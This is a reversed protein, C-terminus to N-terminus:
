RHNVDSNESCGTSYSLAEDLEQRSAPMEDWWELAIIRVDAVGLRLATRAVDLATHVAESQEDTVAEALGTGNAAKTAAEVAAIGLRLATRAAEMAVDGGGVVIVRKGLEVRYGLNYNLLLDVAPVVGDLTVGEINLRRGQMLGVGLYIADFVQRLQSLPIDTGIRTEYCFKVGLARISEVDQDMAEWDVRYIPVGLRMMGGSKSAADFVTVDHGLLALDHAATLGSPGAGIVAVRGIRRGPQAALTTLMERSWRATSFDVGAAGPGRGLQSGAMLFQASIEGGPISRSSEPGYRETLV